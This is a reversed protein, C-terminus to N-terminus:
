ARRAVVTQGMDEDPISLILYILESLGGTETKAYISRLHSRVTNESLGLEDSVAKVSLGRSLLVCVRFEARSLGAPNAMGLIPKDWRPRSGDSPNKAILVKGDTMARAVLGPKRGVWSRVITPVLAEIEALAARTLPQSFHFEIYDASQRTVSMPIVAVEAAGGSTLWGDLGHTMSWGPDERMESLTWLSGPKAHGFHYGLVDTCHARRLPLAGERSVLAVQRPTEEIRHHHRSIGAADAGLGICLARLADVLPVSGHLGGCWTAVGDLVRLDPLVRQDESFPQM